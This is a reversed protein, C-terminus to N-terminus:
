NPTPKQNTQNNNTTQKSQGNKNNNNKTHTMPQIKFVTSNGSNGLCFHEELIVLIGTERDGAGEGGRWRQWRRAMKVGFGGGGWGGSRFCFGRFFVWVVCLDSEMMAARTGRLGCFGWVCVCLFCEFFSGCVADGQRRLIAVHHGCQLRMQLAEASTAAFYRRHTAFPITHGQLM